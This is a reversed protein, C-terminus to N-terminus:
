QISDHLQIIYMGVLSGSLAQKTQQFDALNRITTFWGQQPESYFNIPMNYAHWLNDRQLKKICSYGLPNITMYM